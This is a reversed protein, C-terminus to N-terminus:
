ITPVKPLTVGNPVGYVKGSVPLRLVSIVHIDVL